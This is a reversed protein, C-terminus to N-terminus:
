RSPARPRGWCLDAAIRLSIRGNEAYPAVLQFVAEDFAAADAPRMRDRSFGNRSHISEIYDAISQTWPLAVTRARGHASFLGRQEVEEVTDYPRFDRNTSYHVILALLDDTWPSPQEAREVIVLQAGPALAASLRPLTVDWDMWHLSEGAVILGYADALTATEIPAVQWHLNAADGHSLRRGAAIMRESVDVADVQAMWRALPRAIDGTGCGIDLAREPGVRLAVLRDFVETPYPPRAPYAAVIAADQFQAAYQLGLHAPKPTAM